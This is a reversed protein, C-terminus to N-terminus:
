PDDFEDDLLQLAGNAIPEPLTFAYRGYEM